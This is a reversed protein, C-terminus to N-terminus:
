ATLFMTQPQYSSPLCLYSAFHGFLPSPLSVDLYFHLLKFQALLASWKYSLCVLSLMAFCLDPFHLHQLSFHLLIPSTTPFSYVTSYVKCILISLFFSIHRFHVTAEPASNLGPFLTHTFPSPSSFTHKSRNAQTNKHEKSLGCSLIFAPHREM